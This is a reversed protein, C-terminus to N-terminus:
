AASGCGHAKGAAFSLREFFAKDSPIDLFGQGFFHYQTHWETSEFKRVQDILYGEFKRGDSVRYVDQDDVTTFRKRKADSVQSCCGTYVGVAGAATQFYQVSFDPGETTEGSEPATLLADGVCTGSPSQAFCAVSFSAVAITVLSVKLGIM